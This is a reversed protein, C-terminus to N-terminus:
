ILHILWIKRINKSIISKYNSEISLGWRNKKKRGCTNNPHREEILCTNELM